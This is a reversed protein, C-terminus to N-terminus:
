YRVKLIYAAKEEAEKAYLIHQAVLNRGKANIYELLEEAPTGIRVLVTCNEVETSLNENESAAKSDSGSTATSTPIQDTVRIKL